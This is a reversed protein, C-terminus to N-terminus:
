AGGRSDGRWWDRIAATLSKSETRETRLEGLTDTAYTRVESHQVDTLAAIHSEALSGYTAMVDIRQKAEKVYEDDDAHNFMSVVSGRLHRLALESEYRDFSEPPDDIPFENKYLEELAEKAHEKVAQEGYSHQSHLDETIREYKKQRHPAVKSFDSNRQREQKDEFHETIDSM